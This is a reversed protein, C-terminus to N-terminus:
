IGQDLSPLTMPMSLCIDLYVLTIERSLKDREREFFSQEEDSHPM